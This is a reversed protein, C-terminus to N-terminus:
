HLWCQHICRCMAFEREESNEKLSSSEIAIGDIATYCFRIVNPTAREAASIRREYRNFRFEGFETSLNPRENQRVLNRPTRRARIGIPPTPLCLTEPANSPYTAAARPRPWTSVNESLHNLQQAIGV